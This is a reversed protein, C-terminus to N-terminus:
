NSMSLHLNLPSTMAKLLIRESIQVLVNAAREEDPYAILSSSVLENLSEFIGQEKRCLLISSVNQNVINSEESVVLKDFKALLEETLM